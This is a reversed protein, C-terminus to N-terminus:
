NPKDAEGRVFFANVDTVTEYWAKMEAFRATKFIVESFQPPAFKGSSTKVQNM